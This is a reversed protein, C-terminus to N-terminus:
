FTISYIQFIHKFYIQTDNDIHIVKLTSFLKKKKRRQFNLPKITQRILDWYNILSLVKETKKKKTKREWVSLTAGNLTRQRYAKKKRGASVASRQELSSSHSVGAVNVSSRRSSQHGDASWSASAGLLAVMAVVWAGLSGMLTLRDPSSCFCLVFHM